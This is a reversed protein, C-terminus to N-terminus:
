AHVGYRRTPLSYGIFDDSVAAETESEMAATERRREGGRTTVWLSVTEQREYNRKACRSGEEIVHGTRELVDELYYHAVPFTRGPVTLLPAGGFYSSFLDADLTASM